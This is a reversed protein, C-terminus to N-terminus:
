KALEAKLDALTLGERALMVSLRDAKTRAPRADIQALAAEIERAGPQPQPHSWRVLRPGSGDDVIDVDRRLDIAPFLHQVAEAFRKHVETM